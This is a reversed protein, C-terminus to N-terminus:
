LKKIFNIIKKLNQKIKLGYIPYYIFNETQSNIFFLTPFTTSYFLEIPYSMKSENNVIVSIIKQNFKDVYPKNTFYNKIIDNCPQCNKKILIIMM